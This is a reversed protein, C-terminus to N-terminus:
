PFVMREDSKVLLDEVAAHWDVQPYLQLKAEYLAMRLMEGSIVIM